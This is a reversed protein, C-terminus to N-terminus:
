RGGKCECKVFGPGTDGSGECLKGSKWVGCDPLAPFTGSKGSMGLRQLGLHLQSGRLSLSRARVFRRVMPRLVTGPGGPVRLIQSIFCMIRGTTHGAGFKIILFSFNTLTVPVKSIPMETEQGRGCEGGGWARVCLQVVFLCTFKLGM